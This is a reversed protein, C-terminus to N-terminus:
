LEYEWEDRAILYLTLLINEQETFHKGGIEIGVKPFLKEALYKTLRMRETLKVNLFKRSYAKLLEWEKDGLSKIAWEELQLSEKTLGRRKIEKDIRSTKEKKARREHVVITGAVIDGLRKHKSHFFIFIMGVFYASPLMDIIRLLNRILSSLLTLSHGNEQIARIGVWKKGLTKGSFFYECVFFYGWNIFFIVAIAIAIPLWSDAFYFANSLNTMVLVLYILINTIILLLQDILMAAGRSGLGAVQYQLSVFEPTKIDIQDQYM